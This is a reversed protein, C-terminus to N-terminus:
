VYNVHFGNKPNIPRWRARILGDYAVMVQWMVGQEPPKPHLSQDSFKYTILLTTSKSPPKGSTNEPHKIQGRLPKLVTKFPTALSNGRCNKRCITRFNYFVVLLFGEQLEERFFGFICIFWDTNQLIKAHGQIKRIYHLWTRHLCDACAVRLEVSILDLYQM